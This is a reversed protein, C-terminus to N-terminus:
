DYREKLIKYNLAKFHEQHETRKIRIFPSDQKAKMEMSYFLPYRFPNRQWERIDVDTDEDSNNTKSYPDLILTTYIENTYSFVLRLLTTAKCICEPYHSWFFQYTNAMFFPRHCERFDSDYTAGRDLDIFYSQNDVNVINWSDRERSTQLDSEFNHDPLYNSIFKTLGYITRCEIKYKTCLHTMGASLGGTKLSYHDKLIDDLLMFLMSNLSLPSLCKGLGLTKSIEELNHTTLFNYIQKIQQLQGLKEMKLIDVEEEFEANVTYKM